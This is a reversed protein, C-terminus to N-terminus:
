PKELEKRAHEAVKDEPGAAELVAQFHVKAEDTRNLYYRKVVGLNFHATANQPEAALIGQFAEAAEGFEKREFRLMGLDRLVRVNGPELKRAKELFTAARDFAEMHMFTEGLEALVAVNGPDGQIQMMLEQVRSMDEAQHDAERPSDRLTVSLASHNVRYVFSTVFMAALLLGMVALVPHRLGPRNATM